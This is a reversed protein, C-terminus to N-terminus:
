SRRQERQPGPILTKPPNRSRDEPLHKRIPSRRVHRVGVVGRGPVSRPGVLGRGSPKQGRGSTGLPRGSPKQSRGARTTPPRSARCPRPTSCAWSSRSPRGPRRRGVAARLRLRAGRRGRHVLLYEMEVLRALHIKVQTDGWGRTSAAGRPRHLAARWARHGERRLAERVMEDLSLLFRRTQPPLEDLTRGLVEAALRNAM